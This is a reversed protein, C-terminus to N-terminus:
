LRIRVTINMIERRLVTQRELDQTEEDQESNKNTLAMRRWAQQLHQMNRLLKDKKRKRRFRLHRNSKVVKDIAWICRALRGTPVKRERTLYTTLTKPLYGMAGWTTDFESFYSHKGIESPFWVQIRNSNLNSNSNIIKNIKKTLINDLETELPCMMMHEINDKVNIGM